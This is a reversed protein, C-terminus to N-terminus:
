QYLETSFDSPAIMYIERDPQESVRGHEPKGKVNARERGVSELWGLVSEVKGDTLAEGTISMTMADLRYGPGFAAAFEDPLVHKVSAPDNIDEFTVLVPYQDPTLTRTKGKYLTIALAIPIMSDRSISGNEPLMEPVFIRAAYYESPLLAFLYRGNPLAVVTAEGTVTGHAARMDPLLKLDRTWAVKVVSSGEVAGQPTDVRITLKQHWSYTPFILFWVGVALVAAIGLRIHSRKM